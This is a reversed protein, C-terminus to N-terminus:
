GISQLRRDLFESLKRREEPIMEAFRAAAVVVEWRELAERDFPRAEAYTTLYSRVVARRCAPALVRIITPAGADPAGVGLLLRTRAVDGLPDGRSATAWDIIVPDTWSGLMNGFHLDGHCLSDGPPLRDLVALVQERASTDLDAREIRSRLEVRLEPLEAPAPHRHVAAHVTGIVRGARLVSGPRRALLQLLNGGDIREMVLGTRGDVEVIDFVAPVRFGLGALNAIASLAAAERRLGPDDGVTRSLKLVTGDPRLFIDADRGGARDSPNGRDRADAM